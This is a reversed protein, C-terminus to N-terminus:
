RRHEREVDAPRGVRRVRAALWGATIVLLQISSGAVDRSLGAIQGSGVQRCTVTVLPRELLNLVSLSHIPRTGSTVTDTVTRWVLRCDDKGTQEVVALGDKELADM